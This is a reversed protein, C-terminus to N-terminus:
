SVAEAEEYHVVEYRELRVDPAWFDGPLGAKHKLTRLFAQPDPLSEWVQPLLTARRDRWRLTVGDRYPVLVATAVIENEAVIPSSRGILSVEFRTYVFEARTLPAFRPDRFAAGRANSEVDAGLPLAPELSGICGRLAGHAQLTVFCAGPEYLRLHDPAPALALGLTDAVANRARALLATGLADTVSM